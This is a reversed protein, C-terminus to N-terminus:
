IKERITATVRVLLGSRNGVADDAAKIILRAENKGPQIVVAEAALGKVNDPVILQVKFPGNYNNQRIVKVDLTAEKGAQLTLTNPALSVTAVSTTVVTLAIPSSPQVLAVNRKEKTPWDKSPPAVALGRFAISYTGPPTNARVDFTVNSEDKSLNFPQNNNFVFPGQPLSNLLTV